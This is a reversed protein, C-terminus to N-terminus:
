GCNCVYKFCLVFNPSLIQLCIGTLKLIFWYLSEFDEDFLVREFEYYMFIRILLLLSSVLKETSQSM